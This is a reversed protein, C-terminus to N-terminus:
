GKEVSLVLFLPAPNSLRQNSDNYVSLIASVYRAPIKGSGLGIASNYSFILLNRGLPSQRQVGGVFKDFSRNLYAHFSRSKEIDSYRRIKIFFIYTISLKNIFLLELVLDRLSHVLPLAVQSMIYNRRVVRPKM